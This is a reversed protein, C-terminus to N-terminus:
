KGSDDPLLRDNNPQTGFFFKLPIAVQRSWAEENHEAGAIIQYVLNVDLEYGQKLLAAVMAEVAPRLENELGKTGNLIVLKVSDPPSTSLRVKDVIDNSDVLFAPSLCGAMSFIQPHSWVLDFAMLGGLSSGMVATDERGPRTRYAKDIFPKVTSILFESYAAGLKKPSYEESRQSTNYIGVIIIEQILNRKILDDAIEDLHWEQGQFATFPTFLNQGDHVYLVPYKRNPETEYSPPLWVVLDRKNKLQPSYFQRHYRVTGTVGGPPEQRQDKWAPVRHTITTDKNILLKYNGPIGGEENLAETEWSGRTLKYEVITDKLIQLTLRFKGKELPVMKRGQAPNWSGLSPLNGVLVIQESNEPATVLFSVTHAGEQPFPMLIGLYFALLGTILM